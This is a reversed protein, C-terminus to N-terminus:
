LSNNVSSIRSMLQPQIGWRAVWTNGRPVVAMLYVRQISAASSEAADSQLQSLGDGGENNRGHSVILWRLGDHVTTIGRQGGSVPLTVEVM